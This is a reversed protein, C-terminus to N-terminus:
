ARAALRRKSVQWLRWCLLGGLLFGYLVSDGIDSRSLWLVHLVGLVAVVYVLQHLQRWRQRLRRRMGNTSTLALPVLFVWGAFGVMVYPRELLEELLIELSWGVYVQAFVLLHLTAYFFMFLGLMRRYRFLAPWGWRAFPRATLVLVLLRIAWEGTQHMLVEAPDPGLTNGLVGYVIFLFPSLALGFVLVWWLRDLWPARYLSISL